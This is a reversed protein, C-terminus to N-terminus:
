KNRMYKENVEIFVQYKVISNSRTEIESILEEITCHSLSTPTLGNRLQQLRIKGNRTRVNRAAQVAKADEITPKEDAKVISEYLEKAMTGIGFTTFYDKHCLNEFKSGRHIDNWMECLFTHLNTLSKEATPRGM